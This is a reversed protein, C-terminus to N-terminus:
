SGEQKVGNVAAAVAAAAAAVVVVVVQILVYCSAQPKAMRAGLLTM